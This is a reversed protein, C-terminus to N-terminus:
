QTLNGLAKIRSTEQLRGLAQKLSRNVRFSYYKQNKFGGKHFFIRLIAKNCRKILKKDKFASPDEHWWELTKKWDVGYNNSGDPKISIPNSRIYLSGMSYPFTVIHGELVEEILLKNVLSILSSYISSSYHIGKTAEWKNRRVWKWADRSGLCKGIKYPHSGRKLIRDTFEKYSM